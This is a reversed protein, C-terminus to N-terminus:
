SSVRASDQRHTPLAHFIYLCDKQDGGNAAHGFAFSGESAYDPRCTSSLEDLRCSSVGWLCHPKGNKYFVEDDKISWSAGKSGSPATSTPKYVTVKTKADRSAQYKALVLDGKEVVGSESHTFYSTEAYKKSKFAIMDKSPDHKDKTSDLTGKYYDLTFDVKPQLSPTDTASLDTKEHSTM